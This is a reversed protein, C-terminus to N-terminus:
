SFEHAKTTSQGYTNAISQTETVIAETTDGCSFEKTASNDEFLDYIAIQTKSEDLCTSQDVFNKPITFGTQAIVNFERPPYYDPTYETGYAKTILPYVQSYRLDLQETNKCGGSQDSFNELPFLEILKPPIVPFNDWTPDTSEGYTLGPNVFFFSTAAVTIM